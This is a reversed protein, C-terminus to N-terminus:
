HKRQQPMAESRIPGGPSLVSPPEGNRLPPPYEGVSIDVAGNVFKPQRIRIAVRDLRSEDFKDDPGLGMLKLVGLTGDVFCAFQRATLEVDYEKM